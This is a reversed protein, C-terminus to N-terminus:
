KRVTRAHAEVIRRALQPEDIDLGATTLRQRAVKMAERHKDAGSVLLKPNAKKEQRAYQEATAVADTVAQTLIAERVELPVEPKPPPPPNLQALKDLVDAEFGTSVPTKRRYLDWVLVLTFGALSLQLALVVFLLSITATSM